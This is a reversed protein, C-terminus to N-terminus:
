SGLHFRMWVETGTPDRDRASFRAATKAILGLGLGLGESDVEARLGRGDDTILIELADNAYEVVVDIRAQPDGGGYGHLVANSVAESVALAIDGQAAKGAGHVAAFTSVLRRLAGVNVRTAEVSVALVNRTALAAARDDTGTV